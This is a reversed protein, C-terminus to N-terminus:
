PGKFTVMRTRIRHVPRTHLRFHVGFVGESLLATATAEWLDCSQSVRQMVSTTYSLSPFLVHLCLVAHQRRLCHLKDYMLHHTLGFAISLSCPSSYKKQGVTAGMGEHVPPRHGTNNEEEKQIHHPLQPM